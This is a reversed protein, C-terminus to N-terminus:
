LLPGRRIGQVLRFVLGQFHPLTHLAEFHKLIMIALLVLMLLPQWSLGHAIVMYVTTASAGFVMKWADIEIFFFGILVFIIFALLIDYVPLGLMVGFTVAIAKGGRWHLFPSFAHGLVASIAIFVTGLVPLGFLSHSLYVLPIGKVVDLAVALLGAAKNGARFVNAAGPNGDGYTTIDKHLGWRGILVAFPIAALFFAALALLVTFLMEMIDISGAAPHM